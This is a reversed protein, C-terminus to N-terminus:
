CRTRCRRTPVSDGLEACQGSLYTFWLGRPSGRSRLWWGPIEWGADGSVLAFWRAAREADDLLALLLGLEDDRGVMRGIFFGGRTSVKCSYRWWSAVIRDNLETASSCVRISV